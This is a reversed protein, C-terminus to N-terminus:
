AALTQWYKHLEEQFRESAAHSREDFLCPFVLFPHSTARALSAATDAERMIAAHLEWIPTEDLRRLLMRQRFVEFEAKKFRADEM